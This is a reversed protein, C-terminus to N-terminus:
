GFIFHDRTLEAMTTDELRLSMITGDRGKARIVVDYGSDFIEFNDGPLGRDRGAWSFSFESLSIKDHAAGKVQFDRIVAQGANAYPQFYDYNVLVFVDAGSGGNLIDLGSAYLRDAGRGGFMQDAGRGGALSDIGNGGRLIDRGDGGFLLDHGGMGYISDAGGFADVYDDANTAIIKEARSTGEIDEIAAALSLISMKMRTTGTQDGTVADSRALDAAKLCQKAAFYIFLSAWFL